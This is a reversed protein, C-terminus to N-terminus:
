FVFMHAYDNLLENKQQIVSQGAPGESTSVYKFIYDMNRIFVECWTLRNWVRELVLRLCAGDSACTFANWGKHDALLLDARARVLLDLIEIAGPGGSAICNATSLRAVNECHNPDAGRALLTKVAGTHGELAACHLPSHSWWGCLNPDAGGDLLVDMVAVTGASSAHCLATRGEAYHYNPDQGQKLCTRVDTDSKCRVAALLKRALKTTHPVLILDVTNPRGLAIWSTEDPVPQGNVVFVMAFPFHGLYHSCVIGALHTFRDGCLDISCCSVLTSGTLPSPFNVTVEGSLSIQQETQSGGLVDEETADGSSLGCLKFVTFGSLEAPCWQRVQGVHTRCTPRVIYTPRM